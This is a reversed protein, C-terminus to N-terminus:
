APEAFWRVRTSGYGGGLGWLSGDIGHRLTKLGALPDRKWNLQHKGKEGIRGVQGVEHGGLLLGADLVGTKLRRRGPRHGGVRRPPEQAHGGTHARLDEDAKKGDGPYRAPQAPHGADRLEHPVAMEAILLNAAREGREAVAVADPGLQSVADFSRKNGILDIEAEGVAGYAQRGTQQDPALELMSEEMALLSQRLYECNRRPLGDLPSSSLNDFSPFDYNFWQQVLSAVPKGDLTAPKFKYRGFAEVVSKAMPSDMDEHVLGVDIIEGNAAVVGEVLIKIKRHSWRSSRPITPAVQKLVVPPLLLGPVVPLQTQTEDQEDYVTEGRSDKPHTKSVVGPKHLAPLQQAFM